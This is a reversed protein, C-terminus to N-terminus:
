LLFHYDSSVLDPNYPPNEFIRVQVAWEVLGRRMMGNTWGGKFLRCWKKMNGKNLKGEGDVLLIRQSNEIYSYDLMYFENSGVTRGPPLPEFKTNTEVLWLSHPVFESVVSRLVLTRRSMCCVVKLPLARTEQAVAVPWPGRARVKTRVVYM